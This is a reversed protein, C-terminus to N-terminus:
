QRTPSSRELNTPQHFKTRVKPRLLYFLLGSAIALGTGGRLLDGRVLNILDGAVQTSVIGVTLRWGWVCRKFWGVSAIVMTASLLLFLPGVTEGIPALKRYATPNLKWMRDLMTGRWVLTTGALGSMCAGFVLFVGVATMAFRPGTQVPAASNM